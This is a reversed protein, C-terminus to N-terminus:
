SNASVMVKKVPVKIPFRVYGYYDDQAKELKFEAAVYERIAVTFAERKQEQKQLQKDIMTM